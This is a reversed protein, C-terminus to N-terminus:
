FVGQWVMRGKFRLVFYGLGAHVLKYLGLEFQGTRYMQLAISYPSM